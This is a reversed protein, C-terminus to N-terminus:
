ISVRGFLYVSDQAACAHDRAASIDMAGCQNCQQQKLGHAAQAMAWDHWDAYGQPPMCGKPWRKKAAAKSRM